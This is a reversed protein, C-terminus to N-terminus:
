HHLANLIQKLVIDASKADPNTKAMVRLGWINVMLFKALDAPTKDASLEGIAQAQQLGRVLEDEVAQLQLNAKAQVADNHSAMELISNVILCGRKDTSKCKDVIGKLFAEIASLPSSSDDFYQKLQSVSNQGYFELTELFLGEKSKFASYISGPNLKTSDVLNPISTMSYGNNWFTNMANELVENRDFEITRAM